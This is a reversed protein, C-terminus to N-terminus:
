FGIALIKVDGAVAYIQGPEPRIFQIKTIADKTAMVQSSVAFKNVNCQGFVSPVATFPLPFPYETTDEHYWWTGSQTTNGGVGVKDMINIILGNGLRFGYGYINTVPNSPIAEVALKCGRINMNMGTFKLDDGVAIDAIVRCLEGNYTLLDGARYARGSPSREIFALNNSAFSFGGDIREELDNLNVDSLNDGQEIISDPSNVITQKGNIDKEGIIFKNGGTCVRATWTKMSWYRPM